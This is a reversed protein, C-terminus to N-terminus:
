VKTDNSGLIKGLKVALGIDGFLKLKGTIFADEAGLRGTAIKVFNKDSLVVTCQAEEDRERVGLTNKRLDVVWTGGELGNLVFKYVANIKSSKDPKATIREGVKAFIKKPTSMKNWGAEFTFLLPRMFLIQTFDTYM